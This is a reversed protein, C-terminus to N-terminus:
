LSSQMWRMAQQVDRWTTLKKSADQLLEAPAYCSVMLPPREVSAFQTLFYRYVQLGVFLMLPQRDPEIKLRGQRIGGEYQLQTSQAIKEVLEAELPAGLRADAILRGSLKGHKNLLNYDYYALPSALTQCSGDRWAQSREVIQPRLGWVPFKVYRAYKQLVANM